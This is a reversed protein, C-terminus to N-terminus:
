NSVRCASIPNDIEAINIQESVSTIERSRRVRGIIKLEQPVVSCPLDYRQFINEIHSLDLIRGKISSLEQTGNLRSMSIM